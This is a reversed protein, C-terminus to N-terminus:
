RDLVRVVDRKGPDVIVVRRESVVYRYQRVKPVEAVIERPFEYLEVSSPVEAGLALDVNVDARGRDTSIHDLILAVEQQSLELSATVPGGRRPGDGTEIVEVIVHRTPHVIIIRDEVALYRYGRYAPVISVIDSPLPQLRHNRPVTAGVEISFDVNTIQRGRHQSFKQRLETRQNETISVRDGADKGQAQDRQQGSSDRGRTMDKQRDQSKQEAAKGQESKPQATRGKTDDKGRADDRAQSGSARDKRDSPTQASGKRGPQDDTKSAQGKRGQQDDSKSAQGKDGKDSRAADKATQGSKDSKGDQATDKSARGAKDSKSDQATDKSAQGAKDAQNAGRAADKGAADPRDAQGAGKQSGGGASGPERASPSAKENGQNPAQASVLATTGLLAVVAAGIVTSRMYDEM